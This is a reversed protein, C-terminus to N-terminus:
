VPAGSPRVRLRQGVRTRASLNAAELAELFMAGYVGTMQDEQLFESGNLLTGYLYLDPHQILIDNTPNEPSLPAIRAIYRMSLKVASAADPEPWLVIRDGYINFLTPAGSRSARSELSDISEYKLSRLSDQNILSRLELFDDPLRLDDQGAEYFVRKEMARVRLRRELQSEALRIFVPINTDASGVNMFDAAKEVLEDYTAISSTM